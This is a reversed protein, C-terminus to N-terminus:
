SQGPECPSTVTRPSYTNTETSERLLLVACDARQLLVAVVSLGLETPLSPSRITSM